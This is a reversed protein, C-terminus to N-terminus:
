FVFFLKVLYGAIILLAGVVGVLQEKKMAKFVKEDMKHEYLVRHHVRLAAFAIFIVGATDLTAALIEM